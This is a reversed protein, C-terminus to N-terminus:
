GPRKLIADAAIGAALLLGAMMHLRATGELAQNFQPRARALALRRVQRFALPMSALAALAYWPVAGAMADVVLVAYALFVLWAYLWPGAAVPLLTAFTRKGEARDDERDRLNNCQLIATVLFAVPVSAWFVEWTLQQTQVFYASMVILPGMFLFVTIEGLLHHGLPFPGSSHLYGAMSSLVGVALIPWGVQSVIYLGMATSLGFSTVTGWLVARQSLLGRAIVKHPAPYKPLGGRARHDTYEDTLNTGVQILVSGLFALVFLPWELPAVRAALATGVLVPVAAATLTVPRTALTWVRLYFALDRRAEGSPAARLKLPATARGPAQGRRRQGQVARRGRPSRRKVM